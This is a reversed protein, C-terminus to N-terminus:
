WAYYMLVMCGSRQFTRLNPAIEFVYQGCGLLGAELHPISEKDKRMHLCVDAALLHQRVSPELRRLRQVAKRLPRPLRRVAPAEIGETNEYRIQVRALPAGAALVASAGVASASTQPSGTVSAVFPAGKARFGREPSSWYGSSYDLFAPGRSESQELIEAAPNSVIYEAM